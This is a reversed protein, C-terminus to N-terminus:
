LAGRMMAPAPKAKAFLGRPGYSLKTPTLKERFFELYGGSQQDLALALAHSKEAQKACAQELGDIDELIRSAKDWEDGFTEALDRLRNAAPNIARMLWLVEARESAIQRMLEQISFELAGVAQPRFEKLHAFEEEQLFCLVKLAQLQRSINELIRRTM